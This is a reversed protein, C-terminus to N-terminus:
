TRQRASRTAGWAEIAVKWSPARQAPGRKVIRGGREHRVHRAVARCRELHTHARGARACGRRTWARVCRAERLLVRQRQSACVCTCAMTAGSPCVSAGVLRPFPVRRARHRLYPSSGSSGRALRDTSHDEDGPWPRGRAERAQEAAREHRWQALLPAKRVKHVAMCKM